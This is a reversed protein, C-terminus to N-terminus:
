EDDAEEWLCKHFCATRSLAFEELEFCRSLKPEDACLASVAVIGFAELDRVVLRIIRQGLGLGRFQPRLFIDEFQAIRGGDAVSARFFLSVFGAPEGKYVPLYLRGMAADVLLMKFAERQNESLPHGRERYAEEALQLLQRGTAPGGLLLDLSRKM